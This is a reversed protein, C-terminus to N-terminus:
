VRSAKTLGVKKSLNRIKKANADEDAGTGAIEVNKLEEVPPEVNGNTEAAEKMPRKSRVRKKKDEQPQSAGPVGGGPVYRQAPKGGKFM